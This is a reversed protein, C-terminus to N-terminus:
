VIEVFVSFAFNEVECRFLLIQSVVHKEFDRFLTAAMSAYFNSEDDKQITVLVNASQPDSEMAFRHVKM